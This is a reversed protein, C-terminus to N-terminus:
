HRFDCNGFLTNLNEAFISWSPKSSFRSRPDQHFGLLVGCFGSFRSGLCKHSGLPVRGIDSFQSGLGLYSGLLVRWFGPFGAGLARTPGQLVPFSFGPPRAPGQLFGFVLVWTHGQRYEAFFPFRSGLLIRMFGLFQSMTRYHPGLVSFALGLTVGSFSTLRSKDTKLQFVPTQPLM